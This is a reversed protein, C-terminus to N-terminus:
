LITSECAINFLQQAAEMGPSGYHERGERCLFHMECPSSDQFPLALRQINVVSVDLEELQKNIWYATAANIYSNLHRDKSHELIHPWPPINQYIVKFMGTNQVEKLVNFLNHFNKIYIASDNYALDHCGSDFVLLYPNSTTNNYDSHGHAHDLILKINDVLYEM